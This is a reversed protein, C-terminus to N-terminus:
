AVEKRLVKVIETRMERSSNESNALRDMVAELKEQLAFWSMALDHLAEKSPNAVNENECWEFIHRCTLEPVNM